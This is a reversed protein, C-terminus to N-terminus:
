ASKRRKDQKYRVVKTYDGTKAAEARLRELTSDVGGGGRGTAVVPKDPQPASKRKNMRLQTELKAVAFAFQVPDKIDALEKAKKPNKGLAYVVLAPNEAGQVIVGQQTQSFTNQVVDEADEYDKVGLKERAQGYVELREQWSRQQAEQEQEIRAQEADHARKREYWSALAAEFKDTDYDHAELTPKAGLAPKSEVGNAKAELERNRKQLERNKRRLERVWEPAANGEEAPPEEDGITVVVDGEDGESEASEAQEGEEPQSEEDEDGTADDPKGLEPTDVGVEDKTEIGM